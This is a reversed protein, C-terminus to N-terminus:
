DKDMLDLWAREANWLNLYQTCYNVPKQQHPVRVHSTTETREKESIEFYEQKLYSRNLVTL